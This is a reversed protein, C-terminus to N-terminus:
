WPDIYPYKKKTRPRIPPLSAQGMVIWSRTDAPDIVDDLGYGAAANVAKARQYFEEVRRNYEKIREEPDEIAMLEKRYGLK